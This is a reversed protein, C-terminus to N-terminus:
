PCFTVAVADSYNFGAGGGAPDRYWFQFSWTSLATIRAQEHPPSHLDVQHLAWGTKQIPLPALRGSVGSVCLVGDGAPVHTRDPGYFYLGWEGPPLGTTFLSFTNDSVSLSSNASITAGLGASTPAGECYRDRRCFDEPSDGPVCTLVDVTDQRRQVVRDALHSDLGRFPQSGTAHPAAADIDRRRHVVGSGTPRTLQGFRQTRKAIIAPGVFQDGRRPLPVIRIQADARRDRQAIQL